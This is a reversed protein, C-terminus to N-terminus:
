SAAGGREREREKEADIKARIAEENLQGLQQAATALKAITEEANHSMLYKQQYLLM